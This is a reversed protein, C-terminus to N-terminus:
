PLVVGLASIISFLLLLACSGTMALVLGFAGALGDVLMGLRGETVTASLAAAVKYALYHVGLRLFPVLCFGIVALMGFIGISNRLMGAGALVTEAADSIIGGVVPVMSSMTLKAAKVTLADTAGSIVGSIGLYGVFLVLAGALITTILWKITAAIRKLGDNGVACYSACAAIYAYTMPILLRNILTLLLDSCFITLLQRTAAGAPAGAAAAAATITPLLAKSFLEMNDITERGLGMLANVDTVSLALIGLVGALTAADFGGVSLGNLLSCLIAIVVLLVANRFGGKVITSFQTVALNLLRAIGEGLSLDDTVSIGTMADGAAVELEGYDEAARVGGSHLMLLLMLGFLILFRKM